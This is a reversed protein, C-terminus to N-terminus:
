VACQRLYDKLRVREDAIHHNFDVGAPPGFCFQRISGNNIITIVDKRELVILWGRDRAIRTLASDPNMCIPVGVKELMAVDGSTDGIAWVEKRPIHQFEPRALIMDVVRAKEEADLLDRAGTFLGAEDIPMYTGFSEHMGWLGAFMRVAIEPSASIAAVYAGDALRDEVAFRTYRYVHDRQTTTVYQCARIFAAQPIGKLQAEFLEVARWLYDGFPVKRVSWLQHSEDIKQRCDITMYGHDILWDVIGLFMSDRVLTGDLDTLLIGNYLGGM